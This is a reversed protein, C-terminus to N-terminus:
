DGALLDLTLAASWTFQDAGLGAGTHPHYYEWFGTARVLDLTRRRLDDRLEPVRCLFWNTNVWTPGRWYLVPDFLDAGTAVTPFPHAVDYRDGLSRLVSQRIAGPVDAIIPIHAALIDPALWRQGPVDYYRFRGETPSWLKEVLCDVARAARQNAETDVRLKLALAALASEAIALVATMFPDYVAFGGPGFDDRAIQDVLAIYRRYEDDSPRMSPDAVKDKDVRRFSPATSPDVASLPLDWAPSNDLGSEWPHVVAVGGWSLPDRHALYFAHSRDVAPLAARLAAPDAGAELLRHLALAWVPPNTITTTREAKWVEPGPFYDGSLHHFQIHPVRGDKWQGALLSEIETLGRAPDVYAWGIAAFASDWAWQHPYLHASPVTYRGRDNASLLAAARQHLTM